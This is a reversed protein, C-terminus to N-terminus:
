FGSTKLNRTGERQSSRRPSTKFRAIGSLLVLVGGVLAGAGERTVGWGPFLLVLVGLISLLSGVAFVAYWPLRRGEPSNASLASLGSLVILVSVVSSGTNRPLFGSWALGSWWAIAGGLGAPVYSVAYWVRRAHGARPIEFERM